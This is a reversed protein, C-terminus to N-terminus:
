LKHDGGKRASGFVVRRGLAVLSGMLSYAEGTMRLRGDREVCQGAHILRRIRLDFVERPPYAALISERTLGGAADVERLIRIRRATEAMNDLHFGVYANCAVMALGPGFWPVPVGALAFLAAAAALACLAALAHATGRRATPRLRRAAAFLAVDVGFAAAVAGFLALLAGADAM